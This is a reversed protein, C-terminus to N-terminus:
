LEQVFYVNELTCRYMGLYGKRKASVKGRVMIKKSLVKDWDAWLDPDTDLWLKNSNNKDNKDAIAFLQKGSLFYGETEIFAGNHKYTNSVLKKISIKKPSITSDLAEVVYAEQAKTAAAYLLFFVLLGATKSCKIM